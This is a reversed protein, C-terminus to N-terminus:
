GASGDSKKLVLCCLAGAFRVEGTAFSTSAAMSRFEETSYFPEEFSHLWLLALRFRGFERRMREAVEPPLKRVLDYILAFRGPKLVRHVENLGLAPDKWHHISGTSVVADFSDDPFPLDTAAAKRLEIFESSRAKEVNKRAQAVMAPSIDAGILRMEPFRERLVLLLRGPGTGVDLVCGSRCYLGIDDAVIEYHRRFIDTGSLKNYIVSGPWPIGQPHLLRAIGWWRSKMALEKAGVEGRGGAARGSRRPRGL